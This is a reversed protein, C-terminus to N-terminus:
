EHRAKRIVVREEPFKHAIWCLPYMHSQSVSAASVQLWGRVFNGPRHRMGDDCSTRPTAREVGPAAGRLRKALIVGGRKSTFEAGDTQGEGLLTCEQDPKLRALGNLSM